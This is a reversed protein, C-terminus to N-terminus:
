KAAGQVGIPTNVYSNDNHGAGLANFFIKFHEQPMSVCHPYKVYGRTPHVGMHFSIAM